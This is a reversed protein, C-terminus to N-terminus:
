PLKLVQGVRLSRADTINNIRMLTAVTTGYTTAIGSLTDGPKVRYTRAAAPTKSPKPTAKTTPRPTPKATKTPAQSAAGGSAAAGSATANSPSASAGASPRPSSSAGAVAASGGSGNFRVVLVLVLALALLGALAAQIERGALATRVGAIGGPSGGVRGLTRFGGPGGPPAFRRPGATTELPRQGGLPRQPGVGPGGAAPPRPTRDAPAHDTSSPDRLDMREDVLPRPVRDRISTPRVAPPRDERHFAPTLRPLARTPTEDPGTASAQTADSRDAQADAREAWRADRSADDARDRFAALARSESLGAAQPPIAGPGAPPTTMQHERARARAARLEAIRSQPQQAVPQADAAPPVARPAPAAGPRRFSLPPLRVSPLHVDLPQRVRDLIVPTTRPIARGPQVFPPPDPEGAAPGAVTAPVAHPDLDTAARNAAQLHPGAALGAAAEFLPCDLHAAVLCLQQQRDIPLRSPPDTAGCRHERAPSASRWAGDSAVLFPCVAHVIRPVADPGPERSPRAPPQPRGPAPRLGGQQASLPAPETM